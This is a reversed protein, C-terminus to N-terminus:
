TTVSPSAAVFFIPCGVMRSAGACTAGPSSSSASSPVSCATASAYRCYASPAVSIKAADTRCACAIAAAIPDSATTTVPSVLFRASMMRSKVSRLIFHRTFTITKVSPVSIGSISVSIIARGVCDSLRYVWITPRPKRSCGSLCRSLRMSQTPTVPERCKHEAGDSSPILRSSMGAFCRSRM